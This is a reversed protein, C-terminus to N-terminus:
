SWHYLHCYDQHPWCSGVDESTVMGVVLGEDEVYAVQEVEGASSCIVLQLQLDACTTVLDPVAEM